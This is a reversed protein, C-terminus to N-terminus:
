AFDDLNRRIRWPLDMNRACATLAQELHEHSVRQYFDAIDCKLAYAHQKALELSHRQFAMWGVDRQFLSSEGEDPGFRYSFVVNESVPVRTGEIDNGIAIVIGLLYANWLPDLQTAWRFGTYGIQTLASHHTPPISRLSTGFDDNIKLLTEVALQECERFVLNEPPYPFIDTDGYHAVNRCALGFASALPDASDTSQSPQAGASSTPVASMPLPGTRLFALCFAAATRCAYKTMSEDRQFGVIDSIGRVAFAPVKDRAARYVGASEMEIAVIKRTARLWIQLLEPDKVLRDSSAIEGTTVLPQRGTKFGRELSERVRTNWPDDPGTYKSTDEYSVAPRPVGINQDSNWPGLVAEIAPLNAIVTSAKRDIPGGGLSFERDGGALVAEVSFDQIRTSVIVDGLTFDDNEVGGAIGLVIIWRPNLDEILDRAVEQAEGTGPEVGRVIGIRYSAGSHTELTAINYQRAGSEIEKPQFVALAARFEDERITIIGFDIKSITKPV